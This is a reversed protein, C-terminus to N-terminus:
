HNIVLKKTSTTEGEASKVAVNIIYVGNALDTTNLKVGSSFDGTSSSIIKSGVANYIDVTCTADDADILPKIMVEGDAPNPVITLDFTASTVDELKPSGVTCNDIYATFVCGNTATFGDNLQIYTEAEYVVNRASAAIIDTSNINGGSIYGYNSNRTGALTTSGPCGVTFYHARVTGNYTVQLKYQGAINPATIFLANLLRMTVYSSGETYNGNYITAGLPNIIKLNIVQSSQIDRVATSFWILDGANFHNCYPVTGAYGHSLGTADCTEATWPASLTFASIIQKNYYPEENAWLSANIGTPCSGNQFPDRVFGSPDQVEFHLHPYSSNGSSGVKGIVEGASVYDDKAKSTVSGDKMHMYWTTSGDSHTLVVFNGHYIPAVGTKCTRDFLGDQKDSIYGGEAAVVDVDGNNVMTWGFPGICIDIGSHDYGSSGDDYTREGCNYDELTAGAQGSNIGSSSGDNDVYNSIYYYGLDHHQKAPAMPWRYSHAGFAATTAPSIKGEAALRKQSDAVRTKIADYEAKSVCPGNTPLTLIEYAPIIQDQATAATSILMIYLLVFKLTSSKNKMTHSKLILFHFHQQNNLNWPM